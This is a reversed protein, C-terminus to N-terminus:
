INGKENVEMTDCSFWKQISGVQVKVRVESGNLVEATLLALSTSNSSNSSHVLQWDRVEQFWQVDAAVSSLTGESSGVTTTFIAAKGDSTVLYHTWKTPNQSAGGLANTVLDSVIDLLFSRQVLVRLLFATVMGSTANIQVYDATALVVLSDISFRVRIRRGSEVATTLNTQSKSNDTTSSVLLWCSNSLWITQLNESTPGSLASNSQNWTLTETSGDILHSLLNLQGNEHVRSQVSINGRKELIVDAHVLKKNGMFFLKFDAGAETASILDSYNGGTRFVKRNTAMKGNQPIQVHWYFPDTTPPSVPDNSLRLGNSCFTQVTMGFAGTSMYDLIIICALRSAGYDMKLHSGEAIYRSTGNVFQVVLNFGLSILNRLYAYNVLLAPKSDVVELVRQSTKMCGTLVPDVGDTEKICVPANSASVSAAPCESSTDMFLQCSSSRTTKSVTTNADEVLSYMTCWPLKSCLAACEMKSVVNYIVPVTYDSGIVCSPSCKYRNTYISPLVGGAMVVVCSFIVTYMVM